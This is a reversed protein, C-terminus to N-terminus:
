KRANGVIMAACLVLMALAVGPLERSTYLAAGLMVVITGVVEIGDLWHMWDRSRSRGPSATRVPGFRDALFEAVSRPIARRGSAWDGIRSVEVDLVEALEEDSLSSKTRALRFEEPTM